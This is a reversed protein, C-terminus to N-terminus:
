QYVHCYQSIYVLVPDKKMSDTKNKELNGVMMNQLRIKSISACDTSLLNVDGTM